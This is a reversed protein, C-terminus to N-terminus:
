ITSKLKFNNNEAFNFFYKKRGVIKKLFFRM